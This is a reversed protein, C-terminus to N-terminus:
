RGLVWPDPAGGHEHVTGALQRERSPHSLGHRPCCEATGACETRGANCPCGTRGSRLTRSDTHLGTQALWTEFTTSAVQYGAGPLMVEGCLDTGFPDDQWTARVRIPDGRADLTRRAMDVMDLTEPGALDAVRGRAKGVVLKALAEAVDDVAVPQLLLPAVSAVGDRTTWGAVMAGFDHFQTARQISWPVPGAEVLREQARKGDYHGTGQVRDVNVISLLVHHGVGNRREATLLNRTATEFFAVAKEPDLQPTNVVDVVGDVGTMAAELQEAKTDDIGAGRSVAVVDHGAAHLSSIVSRGVLGSAGAVAIRAM